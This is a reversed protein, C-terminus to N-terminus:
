IISPFFDSHFSSGQHRSGLFLQFLRQRRNEEKHLIELEKKEIEEKLKQKLSFAEKLNWWESPFVNFTRLRGAFKRQRQKNQGMIVDLTLFLILLILIQKKKM